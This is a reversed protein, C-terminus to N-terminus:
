FYEKANEAAFGKKGTSSCSMKAVSFHKIDIRRIKCKPGWDGCNADKLNLIDVYILSLTLIACIYNLKLCCIVKNFM